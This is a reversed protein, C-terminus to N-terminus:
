ASRLSRVYEECLQKIRALLGESKKIGNKEANLSENVTKCAEVYRKTTDRLRHSMQESLVLLRDPSIEFFKEFTEESIESLVTGDESVVATASRPANDLLSMEGFIAGAELEAIKVEDPQGYRDYIGIKGCEICYMCDGADGQSFVVTNKQYTKEEVM